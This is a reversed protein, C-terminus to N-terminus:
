KLVKIYDPLIRVGQGALYKDVYDKCEEVTNMEMQIYPDSICTYIILSCVYEVGLGLNENSVKRVTAASQSSTTPNIPVPLYHNWEEVDNYDEKREWPLVAKAKM